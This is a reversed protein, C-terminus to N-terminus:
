LVTNSTLNILFRIWIFFHVTTIMLKYYTRYTDALVNYCASPAFHILLNGVVLDRESLQSWRKAQAM